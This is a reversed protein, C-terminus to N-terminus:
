KERLIKIIRDTINSKQAITKATDLEMCCIKINYSKENVEIQKVIAQINKKSAYELADEKTLFDERHIVNTNDILESGQENQEYVKWVNYTNSYTDIINLKANYYSNLKKIANYQKENINEFLVAYKKIIVPKYKINTQPVQKVTDLTKNIEKPEPKLSLGIDSTKEKIIEVPADTFEFIQIQM